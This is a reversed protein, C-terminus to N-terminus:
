SRRGGIEKNGVVARVLARGTIVLCKLNRHDNNIKNRARDSERREWLVRQLYEREGWKAM